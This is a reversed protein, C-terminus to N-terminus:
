FKSLLSLITVPIKEKIVQQGVGMRSSEDLIGNKTTQIDMVKEKM